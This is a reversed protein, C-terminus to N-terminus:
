GDPRTLVVRYRGGGDGADLGLGLGVGLGVGAAVAAAATWVWWRRYWPTVAPPLPDAHDAPDLPEASTGDPGLARSLADAAGTPPAVVERRAELLASSLCALPPPQGAPWACRLPGRRRGDGAAALGLAVGDPGVDLWALWDVGFARVWEATRAGPPPGRGPRLLPRVREPMLDIRQRLAVGAPATLQMAWIGYGPAALQLCHRGPVLGAQVLPLEGVLAGDLRVEAAAPQGTLALQAPAREAARRRAEAICAVVKPALERADPRWQPDIAALRGFAQRAAARRGAAFHIRGELLRLARLLSRDAGACGGQLEAEAAALAALAAQGDFQRHHERARELHSRARAAAAAAAAPPQPVVPVVAMLGPEGDLRAELAAILETVAAPGRGADRGVLAVLQQAAARGGALGAALGLAVIFLRKGM